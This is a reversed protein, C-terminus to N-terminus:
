REGNLFQEFTVPTERKVRKHGKYTNYFQRAKIEEMHEINGNGWKLIIEPM